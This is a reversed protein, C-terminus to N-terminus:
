EVEEEFPIIEMETKQESAKFLAIQDKLSLNSTKTIEIWNEGTKRFIGINLGFHEEFRNEIDMVSDTGEIICAGAIHNKRADKVSLDQALIESVLAAKSPRHSRSFFEIKLGPFVKNFENSIEGLSKSDKIEIIM